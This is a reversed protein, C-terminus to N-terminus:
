VGKTLYQIHDGDSEDILTGYAEIATVESPGRKALPVVTVDQLMAMSVADMNVAFAVPDNEGASEFKDLGHTKFVPHGDFELTDFGGLGFEDLDVTYRMYEQHEKRLENYTEYDAFIAINEPTGGQFDVEMALDRIEDIVDVNDFDGQLDGYENGLDLFGDFGDTDNDDGLLIQKEEYIRMSRMMYDEVEGEASRLTRSGLIMKDTVRGKFGYGVVDFQDEEWKDSLTDDSNYDGEGSAPELEAEVADSHDVRPTVFNEISDTTQRAILDAAPTREPNVVFVDPVIYIPMKWDGSGLNKKIENEIFKLDYGKRVMDNWKKFVERDAEFWDKKLNVPERTKSALPDHYITGSPVDNFASKYIQTKNKTRPNFSKVLTKRKISM